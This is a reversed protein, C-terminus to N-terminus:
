QLAPDENTTSFPSDSFPPQAGIAALVISSIHEALNERSLEVLEEPPTLMNVVGTAVRYYLCQGIVSYGIKRLVAPPQDTLEGLISLLIEFLPRFYDDVLERGAVTPRLVERMILSTEWPPDEAMAGMRILMTHVFDRLRTGPDTGEPRDPIPADAARQSRALRIAEIYLQQKDGFYYNISAVNVDAVRCIERVTADRFGRDAFIPGAEKLIRERIDSM